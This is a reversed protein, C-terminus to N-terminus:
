CSRCVACDPFLTTLSLCAKQATVLQVLALLSLPGVPTKMIKAPHQRGWANYARLSSVQKCYDVLSESNLTPPQHEPPRVVLILIGWTGEDIYELLCAPCPKPRLPAEAKLKNGPNKMHNRARM